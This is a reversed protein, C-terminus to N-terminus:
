LQRRIDHYADRIQSALQKGAEEIHELPEKTERGLQKLRAELDEWHKEASEFRDRLDKAALNVQVRLEDRLRRLTEVEDHFLGKEESM